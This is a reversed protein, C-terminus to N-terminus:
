AFGSPACACNATMRTGAVAVLDAYEHDVGAPGAGRGDVGDGAHAGAQGVGLDRLVEVQDADVRAADSVRCRFQAAAGVGFEVRVAALRHGVVARCADRM